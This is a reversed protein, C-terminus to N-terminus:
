EMRPIGLLQSLTAALLAGGAGTVVDRSAAGARGRLAGILGLAEDRDAQNVEDLNMVETEARDLLNGFSAYNSIDGVAIQGAIVSGNFSVSPSSFGSARDLTKMTLRLGDSLSLRREASAQEFDPLDGTLYGQEVLDVIRSAFAERSGDRIFKDAIAKPILRAPLDLVEPTESETKALWTLIEDLGPTRGGAPTREPEVLVSAQERGKVTLSFIRKANQAPEIRVFGLEDLDDVDGAVPTAWSEDWTSHLIERTMGGAYVLLFPEPDRGSKRLATDAEGLRKLHAALRQDM